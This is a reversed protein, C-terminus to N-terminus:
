AEKDVAQVDSDMMFDIFGGAKTSQGPLIKFMAADMIRHLSTVRGDIEASVGANLYYTGPLLRNAFRFTARYTKGAAAEPLREEPLYSAANGLVVGSQTKIAIGFQVKEAREEFSVDFQVAYSEGPELLNVPANKSDLIRINEIRAGQSAYEVRSEPVLSPDYQAGAVPHKEPAPAPTSPEKEGSRIEERIAEQRDKPAYILKRYHAMVEKPSGDMLCEGKDFLLARSCLEVVAQASHSVFLITGGREQLAQIRAFCKRQFAEDGVSLAEDVVLIDPEVSVAVAFALRLYMGSSYTKVPQHIFDGIGAFELIEPYREEIERRSLGLIAANLFVNERGTFEPNFGAGLELLASIRGSAEIEGGSPTVTGCIMQLLTSKGSGNRGVIGVTEGRRISFSVLKLAQLERYLQRRQRWFSQLLRDLPRDFLLYTKSLGSVRLAEKGQGRIGQEKGMDSSM